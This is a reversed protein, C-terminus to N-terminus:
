NQIDSSHENRGPEDVCVIKRGRFSRGDLGKWQCFPNEYRTHRKVYAMHKRGARAALHLAALADRSTTM